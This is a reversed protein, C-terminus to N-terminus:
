ITHKESKKENIELEKVMKLIHNDSRLFADTNKAKQQIKISKKFSLFIVAFWILKRPKFLM